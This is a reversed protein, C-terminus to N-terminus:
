GVVLHCGRSHERYGILPWRGSGVWEPGGAGRVSVSKLSVGKNTASPAVLPLILGSGLQQSIDFIEERVQAM